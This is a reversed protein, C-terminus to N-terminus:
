VKLRNEYAIEEGFELYRKLIRLYMAWCFSSIKFHPNKKPWSTHYFNVWTIGDKEILTFGVNTRRWDADAEIFDLEFATGAIFKTAIAKWHYGPGFHLMYTGGLEPNVESSKTWWNDMGRSTCIAEFVKDKPVKISLTHYIEAM